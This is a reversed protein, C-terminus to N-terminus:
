PFTSPEVTVGLRTFPSWLSGSSFNSVTGQLQFASLITTESLGSLEHLSNGGRSVRHSPSSLARPAPRSAGQETTPTLKLKWLQQAPAVLRRMSWVHDVHSLAPMSDAKKPDRWHPPSSCRLFFLLHGPPVWLQHVPASSTM